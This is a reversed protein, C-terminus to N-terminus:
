AAKVMEREILQIHTWAIFEYTLAEREAKTLDKGQDFWPHCKDHCLPFTAADSAKLGKGKGHRLLNSHAAQSKGEVGCNACPLSAVARRLKESRYTGTKPILM